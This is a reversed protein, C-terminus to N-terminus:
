LRLVQHITRNEIHFLSDMDKVRFVGPQPIVNVPHPNTTTIKGRWSHGKIDPDYGVKMIAFSNKKAIRENESNIRKLETGQSMYALQGELMKQRENGDDGEIAEVKPQPISIDIQSEVLQFIINVVQRADSTPSFGADEGYRNSMTLAYDIGKGVARTGNYLADWRACDSRFGDHESMARELKEKWAELKAQAANEEQAQEIKEAIKSVVKQIPRPLKL